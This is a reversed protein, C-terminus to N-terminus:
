SEGLLIMFICSVLLTITDAHLLRGDDSGPDLRFDHGM